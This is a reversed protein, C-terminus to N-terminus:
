YQYANTSISINGFDRMSYDSLFSDADLSSYSSDLGEIEIIAAIMLKEATGTEESKELAELFVPVTYDGAQIIKDWIESNANIYDATDSDPPINQNDAIENIYRLVPPKLIRSVAFVLICIGIACFILNATKKIFFYLGSPEASESDAILFSLRFKELSWLISPFFAGVASLLFFLFGWALSATYQRRVASILCVAALLGFGTLSIVGVTKDLISIHSSDSKNYLKEATDNIANRVAKEERGSLKQGLKEGCDACFSRSDSNYAGCQECIKM